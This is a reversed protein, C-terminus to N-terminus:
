SLPSAGLPGGSKYVAWKSKMNCVPTMLQEADAKPRNIKSVNDHLLSLRFRHKKELLDSGQRRGPEQKRGPLVRSSQWLKQTYWTHVRTLKPMTYEARHEQKEMYCGDPDEWTPTRAGPTLGAALLMGMGTMVRTVRLM